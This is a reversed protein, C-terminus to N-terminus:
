MCLDLFLTSIQTFDAFMEVLVNGTGDETFKGDEVAVGGVAGDQFDAGFDDGDGSGDAVDALEDAEAVLEGEFIEFEGDGDAAAAEGLGTGADARAEDDGHLFHVGDFFDVGALAKDAEFGAGSETGEVGGEGEM